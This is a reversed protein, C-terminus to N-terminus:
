VSMAPCDEAEGPANKVVKAVQMKLPLDAKKQGGCM